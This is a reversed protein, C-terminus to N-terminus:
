FGYDVICAFYQYLALESKIIIYYYSVYKSM